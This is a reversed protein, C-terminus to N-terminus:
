ESKLLNITNNRLIADHVNDTFIPELESMRKLGPETQTITNGEVLLGTVDNLEMAHAKYDEIVNNLIRINRHLPEAVVGWHFMDTWIAPHPKKRRGVLGGRSFHNGEILIEHGYLGEFPANWIEVGGGGLEEFRNNEILGPGSKALIGIRRGRVFQNDRFVFNGCSRSLNYIQTIELKPFNADKGDLTLEPLDKSLTLETRRGKLEVVKLVDVEEIMAAAMRDFFALRDGVRMDMSRYPFRTGAQQYGIVVKNAAPQALPAHVLSSIHNNDDGTNEFRCGEVWPGIRAGHINTGGNQVGLLRDERRLMKFRILKLDDAFNTIVGIGPLYYTTVDALTIDASEYISVGQAKYRPACIYVMGPQVAGIADRDRIKLRYRDGGLPEWPEKMYVLLPVGEAMRPHEPDYFLGRTEEMFREVTEPPVQGPRLSLEMEGKANISEVKAATYIPVAYDVTFNCLVVDQSHSIKALNAIDHIIFQSGQGDIILGSTEDVEFVVGNEGPHLDYTGPEFVVRTSGTEKAQALAARIAEMGSDKRLHITNEAAEVEVVGEQLNRSSDAIRWYYRGASLGKAPVYRALHQMLDQDVIEAFDPDSAIQVHYADFPQSAEWAINPYPSIGGFLMSGPLLALIPCYLSFKM